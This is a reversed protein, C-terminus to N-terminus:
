STVATKTWQYCAIQDSSICYASELAGGM